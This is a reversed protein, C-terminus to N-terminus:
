VSLDKDTYNREKAARLEKEASLLDNTRLEAMGLEYRAAANDPNAQVANKLQIIASKFDGKELTKRAEALYSDSKKADASYAPEAAAAGLAIALALPIITRKDMAISRRSM